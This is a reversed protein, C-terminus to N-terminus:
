RDDTQEKHKLFEIRNLLIYREGQEAWGMSALAGFCKNEGSVARDEMDRTNMCKFSREEGCFRCKDTM